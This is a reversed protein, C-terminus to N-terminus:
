RSGAQVFRRAEAQGPDPGTKVVQGDDLSEVSAVEGAVAEPAPQM